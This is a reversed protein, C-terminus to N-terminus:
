PIPINKHFPAYVDPINPFILLVFFLKPMQLLSGPRSGWRHERQGQGEGWLHERPSSSQQCPVHPPASCRAGGSLGWHVQARASPYGVPLSEFRALGPVGVRQGRPHNYHRNRNIQVPSCLCGGERAMENCAEVVLQMDTDPSSGGAGLAGCDQPFESASWQERMGPTQQVGHAARQLSCLEEAWAPPSHGLSRPPLVPYYFSCSQPASTGQSSSSCMLFAPPCPLPTTPQAPPHISTGLSRDGPLPPGKVSM